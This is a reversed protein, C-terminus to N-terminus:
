RYDGKRFLGRARGRGGVGSPDFDGSAADSPHRRRPHKRTAFAIALGLVLLLGGGGSGQTREVSCSCGSSANSAPPATGASGGSSSGTTRSTGGSGSGGTGHTGGAGFSGGSGAGMSGGSVSSATRSTGGSGSGGTGNSGGADPSGGSRSDGTTGGGGTGGSGARGASGSSGGSATSGGSGTGGAASAGGGGDSGTRGGSGGAGADRGRGGAGASGGGGGAGGSGGTQGGIEADFAVGDFPVILIKSGTMCCNTGSDKNKDTVAFTFHTVHGNEMIVNPREMNGWHNVTGDEYRCFNTSPDVALGMAKWNRIGDASMIHYSKHIDWYNYVVHYYGGSYWMLPDEAKGLDAGPNNLYIKSTRVEYKGLVDDAIMVAGSNSFAWYKKDPGVFIGLNATVSGVNFGNDNWSISGKYTFPGDLTKSTFIWGPVIASEVVAYSGDLLQLATTNHGRGNQYTYTPGVEKYPGLVHDSVAHVSVSDSMWASIGKSAQWKSCFLHYKGDDAKLVKGDWYIWKAVDELGNDPDRPGSTGIGWGSTTMKGRIPIPQFYDILTKATAPSAICALTLALVTALKRDNM